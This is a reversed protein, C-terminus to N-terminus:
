FPLWTKNAEDYLYLTGTDMEILKDGNEVGTTPKTDTSLCYYNSQMSKKGNAHVSKNSTVVETIM